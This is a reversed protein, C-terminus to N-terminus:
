STDDSPRILAPDLVTGDSGDVTGLRYIYGILGVIPDEPKHSEVRKLLGPFSLFM